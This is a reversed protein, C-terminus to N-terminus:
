TKEVREAERRTEEAATDLIMAADDLQWAVLKYVALSVTYLIRRVSRGRLYPNRKPRLRPEKLNPM